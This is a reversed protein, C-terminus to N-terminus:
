SEQNPTFLGAFDEHWFSSERRPFAYMSGSSSVINAAQRTFPSNSSFGVGVVHDRNAGSLFDSVGVQLASAPRAPSNDDQAIDIMTGPAIGRFEAVLLGPRTKTLQRNAADALRDFLYALLSDDKASQVALAVAGGAPYSAVFTHRNAAGTVGEIAARSVFVNPGDTQPSLASPDFETLTKGERLYDFGRVM